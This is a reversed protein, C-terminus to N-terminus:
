TSGLLVAKLAMFKVLPAFMVVEEKQGPMFIGGIDMISDALFLSDIELSDGTNISYASDLEMARERFIQEAKLKRINEFHSRFHVEGERYYAEYIISKNYKRIIAKFAETMALGYETNPAIITFEEIKLSDLAFYAVARSLDENSPNLQFIHDGLKPIDEASATPSIIPVKLHLTLAAAVAAPASFLPGILVNIGQTLQNQLQKFVVLPDGKSDKTILKVAVNERSRYETLALQIGKLFSYGFSSYDGTLPVLVGIKFFDKQRKEAQRLLDGAQSINKNEPFEELIKKFQVEAEEFHNEFFLKLGIYFELNGFLDHDKLISQKIAMLESVTLHNKAIQELSLKANRFLIPNSSLNIVKIFYNLANDYQSLKAETIGRLYLCRMLYESDPHKKQFVELIKKSQAYKGLRIHCEAMLIAATETEPSRGYKKLITWLSKESQQFNNDAYFDIAQAM